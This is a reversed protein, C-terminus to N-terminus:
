VVRKVKHLGNPRVTAIKVPDTNVGEGRVIHGLFEVESKFLTCEKLNLNKPLVEPWCPISVVLATLRVHMWLQM